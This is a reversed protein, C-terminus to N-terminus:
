VGPCQCYGPRACPARQRASSDPWGSPRSPASSRSAACLRARACRPWHPCRGASGARSFRGLPLARGLGIFAPIGASWARQRPPAPSAALCPTAPCPHSLLKVFTHLHGIAPVQAMSIEAPNSVLAQLRSHAAQPQCNQYNSTLSSDKVTRHAFTMQVVACSCLQVDDDHLGLFGCKEISTVPISGGCDSPSLVQSM